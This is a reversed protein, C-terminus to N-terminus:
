AAEGQASFSFGFSGLRGYDAHFVDGPAVPVARTFSGALIVQGAELGVGHRAFRRALWAIGAAPHGLVGAALGTEEVVGNRYLVAGAWRLDIDLPRVPRGALVVGASAANDAITDLVGRRQGTEADVRQTRADIIEIAPQVYETADLVETVSVTEGALPRGLVFALEVEVMPVIFRDGPIVEGDALFMDDLLTGYDPESIGFAQQMARSTLGIKRGRISRGIAIKHAMWAVQIAYSDDITLQPFDRLLQRRPTRTREAQELEAVITEIATPTLASAARRRAM